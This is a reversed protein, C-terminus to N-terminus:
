ENPILIGWYEVKGIKTPTGGILFSGFRGIERSIASSNFIMRGEDGRVEFGEADKYLYWNGESDKALSVRDSDKIKMMEVASKSINLAGGKQINIKPSRKAVKNTTKPNYITLQM